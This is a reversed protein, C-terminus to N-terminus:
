ENLRFYVSSNVVFYHTSLMQYVDWNINILCAIELLTINKVPNLYLNNEKNRRVM